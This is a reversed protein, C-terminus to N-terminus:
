KGGRLIREAEKIINYKERGLTWLYKKYVPILLISLIFLGLWIM